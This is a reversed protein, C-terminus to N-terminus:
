AARALNAGPVPRAAVAAAATDIAAGLSRTLEKFESMAPYSALQCTLEFIDALERRRTREYAQLAVPEDAARTLALDLATALLEADRLADSIGHGTVPDRHSAADGVLAWGPGIARRVQNPARLMGRVASTRQAGLLRQALEPAAQRLHAEYAVEPSAERRM